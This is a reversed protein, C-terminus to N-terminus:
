RCWNRTDGVLNEMDNWSLSVLNSSIRLLEMYNYCKHITNHVFVLLSLGHTSFTTILCFSNRTALDGLYLLIIKFISYCWCIRLSCSKSLHHCCLLVESLSMWKIIYIFMHSNGDKRICPPKSRMEKWLGCSCVKQNIRGESLFVFSACYNCHLTTRCYYCLISM